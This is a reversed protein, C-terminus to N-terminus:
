GAERRSHARIRTCVPVARGGQLYVCSQRFCRVRVLEPPGQRHDQDALTIVKSRAEYSFIHQGNLSRIKSALLQLERVAEYDLTLKCQWGYRNM